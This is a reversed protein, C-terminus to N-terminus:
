GGVGKGRAAQSAGKRGRNPGVELSVAADEGRSHELLARCEQVASLLRSFNSAKLLESVLLRQVLVVQMRRSPLTTLIGSPSAPLPSDPAAPPGAAAFKRGAAQTEARGKLWVSAAVFGRLQGICNARRWGCSGCGSGQRRGKGVETNPLLLVECLEHSYSLVSSLWAYSREKGGLLREPESALRASVMGLLQLLSQPTSQSLGPLTPLTRPAAQAAQAYM